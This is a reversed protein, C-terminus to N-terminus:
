LDGVIEELIDETTILGTVKGKSDKVLCTPQRSRRMHPFIDDVPMNEDIFLPPRSFLSVSKRMDGPKVSLVNFVNILGIFEGKSKDFVPMRTYKSNRATKHFEEITMNSDVITMDARPIMIQCARKGSLGFVRTIMFREKSSLVGDKEGERALQKLDERTVFPAPKSFSESPGPVLLKTLWVITISIPLFIMEAFKLVGAYRQCRELPRSHFWAKPLFEGFILLMITTIAASVPQGWGKAEPFGTVISSATVSIIVVCINTGVLTTGLLRDPNELYHQLTRAGLRNKRVFHRLRMRHISIVGTEIGSFFSQCIMCVVILLLAETM